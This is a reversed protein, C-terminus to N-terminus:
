GVARRVDTIQASNVSPIQALSLELPETSGKSEDMVFVINLSKLGFAIPEITVRTQGKGAYASIIQLAKEEIESLNVEPSEPMIKVTCVVTAMIDGQTLVIRSKNILNQQNIFSAKRM